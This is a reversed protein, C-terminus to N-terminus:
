HQSLCSFFATQGKAIRFESPSKWAGAWQNGLVGDGSPLATSIYIQGGVAM